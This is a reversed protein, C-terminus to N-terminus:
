QVTPPSRFLPQLPRPRGLQYGQVHDVGLAILRELVAQSEVFEAITQVGMIHGIKNISEVMAHGVEDEALNKVFMGDIKLYDVQLNKLYAFSSIGKGFDDLAFRCGMGRLVSMFRSATILNSAAVSETIEFCVTEPSVQFRDLQDVVFGLFENDDLSQGSLNISFMEGRGQRPSREGLLRLTNEVVWRDIAPMLHYSEAAAIFGGPRLINGDDDVMRLLVEYHTEADSGGSLPVINQCYLRFHGDRLAHRVRQIWQMQDDRRRLALDQAQYVHVRNRGQEKAVYCASDAVRLIETPNRWEATVPVLGISVGVEFAKEEWVFRFDRVAHCLTKAVRRAKHLSCDKLIVGFEDGGLRALSDGDELHAGLLASIEKLLADGATHGYSDNIVKFQDLDMYLLAHQCGEECACDLAAQLQGEFQRRNILGTLSDHSAEYEMWREMGRLESVDSFVVVAGSIVGDQDQIPTASEQVVIEWGGRCLLIGHGQAEVPSRERLCRSVLDDKSELTQEDVVHYVDKLAQGRAEEWSWGTLQSATPNLYEVRGAQDVTIIGDRLHEFVQQLMRREQLQGRLTHHHDTFDNGICVAGSVGGWEDRLVAVSWAICVERELDAIHRQDLLTQQDLQHPSERLLTAIAAPLLEAVAVDGFLWQGQRNAFVVNADADLKVIISAAAEVVEQSSAEERAEPSQVRFVFVKGVVRGAEFLSNLMFNVTLQSGDKCSLQADTNLHPCNVSDLAPCPTAGLTAVNQLSFQTLSFFDKGQLEATTWGLLAEAEASMSLLSGKRDLAVLGEGAVVAIKALDKQNAGKVLDLRIQLL